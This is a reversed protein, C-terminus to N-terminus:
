SDVSDKFVAKRRFFDKFAESFTKRHTAKYCRILVYTVLLGVSVSSIIRAGIGLERVNLILSVLFYLFSLLSLKLFYYGVDDAELARKFDETAKEDKTKGKYAVAHVKEKWVYQYELHKSYFHISDTLSFVGFLILSISGFLFIASIVFEVSLYAFYRILIALIGSEITFLVAFFNRNATLSEIRLKIISIEKDLDNSL